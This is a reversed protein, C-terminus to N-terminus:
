SLVPWSNATWTEILYDSWRVATHFLASLTTRSCPPLRNEIHRWNSSCCSLGLGLGAPVCTVMVFGHILYLLCSLCSPSSIDSSVHSSPFMSSPASKWLLPPAAAWWRTNFCTSAHTMVSTVAPLRCSCTRHTFVILYPAPRWGVVSVVATMSFSVSIFLHICIQMNTVVNFVIISRTNKISIVVHLCWVCQESIHVLYKSTQITYYVQMNFNDEKLVFSCVEPMMVLPVSDCKWWSNWLLISAKVTCWTCLCTQTLICIVGMDSYKLTFSKGFLLWTKIQSQIHTLDQQLHMIVIFSASRLVGVSTNM